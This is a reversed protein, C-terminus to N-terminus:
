RRAMPDAVPIGGFRCGFTMAARDLPLTGAALRGRTDRGRPTTGIWWWPRWSNTVGAMVLPPSELDARYQGEVVV